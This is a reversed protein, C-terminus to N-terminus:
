SWRRPRSVIGRRDRGRVRGVPRRARWLVRAVGEALGWALVASAAVWLLALPGLSVTGFAQMLHPVSVVTLQAVFSVGVALHLARNPAPFLDTHRAPYAFLLQGAAMFLFVATRTAELPQDLVPPMLALLGLAVLAKVSGSLGVFRLSPGDLLPAHPDRPPREMVGPNRDLGLALAPAGDTILNIWLLQAATLPLLLAGTADRLGLLFAAFAGLTVVLIESLNTSLLFRIFKQINEYISRGEEIAAVITAFNDDLLVLDAVERTVDSGREGMAVGVDARKLAPADNVGDGTMAVIEGRAQLAEVIRLKSEPAVRAFVTGTALLSQLEEPGAATLDAGTVARDADVGVSRAVTLATEPHDGTVMIVRIGAARAQRVADPVEPRPPDWLAVTGLWSLGGERDGAGWALALLRYGRAAQDDIAAGLAQREDPPLACAEMVEEPAGKLYTVPQGAERVTARLYRWEADFPRSALRPSADRLERCDLGRSGAFRLLALELPDGAGTDLEADSALVMARMARDPDPSDLNRVELRNETLTGTKDTVIVTVSGLAEVAALKRVLAKRRAMREVGLTLTVTLVAPLGEPVAAVALAVAFLFVSAFRSLGEALLGAVAIALALALVWRALRRGFEDLRRELPTREPELQELLSALRGMTSAVGTRVVEVYAHGRVVLTGALAESGAVKEVPLSEGTVISEDISLSAATRVTGDAPVRDGAELRILDGPVLDSGARRVLRGDRMVWVQPAALSALRALAAEAKREQWVGLGANLLLIVGIAIGELPLGDRGQGIWVALDVLLAFLLVYILPSQFQRLFRRWVPQPAPQPLANPGYRALRVRAEASSLGAGGLLPQDSM